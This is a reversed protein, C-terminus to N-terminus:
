EVQGYARMVDAMSQFEEDPLANLVDIVADPAGNQEACAILDGKNAPFDIGELFHAVNAPSRGGLGRPM